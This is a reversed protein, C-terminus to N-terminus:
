GVTEDVGKSEDQVPRRGMVSAGWFLGASVVVLALVAGLAGSMETGWYWASILLALCSALLVSKAGRPLSFWLGLAGVSGVSLAAVTPGTELAELTTIFGFVIGLLVCLALLHEYWDRRLHQPTGEELGWVALFAVILLWLDMPFITEADMGWIIDASAVILVLTSFLLSFFVSLAWNPVGPNRLRYALAALGLVMIGDLVWLNTEESLGLARDLFAFFFLFALAAQLAALMGPERLARGFLVTPLTLGLLGVAWGGPTGDNWAQESYFLAMLILASGAVQLLHSVPIWRGEKPLRMGLGIVLFGIVALTVSQGAFGMEPWVWALFTGGAVILVAGGTAALLYQAWRRSEGGFEEEVEERLEAVTESRLLGKQEWRILARLVPHSTRAM